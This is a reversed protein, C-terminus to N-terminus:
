FTKIKLIFNYREGQIMEVGSGGQVRASHFMACACSSM